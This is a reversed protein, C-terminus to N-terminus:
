LDRFVDTEGKPQNLGARRAKERRLAQRMAELHMIKIDRKVASQSLADFSWRADDDLM